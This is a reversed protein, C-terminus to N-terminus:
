ENFQFFVRYSPDYSFSPIDLGLKSLHFQESEGLVCSPLKKNKTSPADPIMCNKACLYLRSLDLSGKKNFMDAHGWTQFKQRMDKISGFSSLHWSANRLSAFDKFRLRDSDINKDKIRSIEYMRPGYIWAEKRRCHFGYIYAVGQLIVGNFKDYKSWNERLSQIIEPRAIEDVDGILLLDTESTKLTRLYYMLKKRQYNEICRSKLCSHSPVSSVMHIKSLINTPIENNEIARKLYLPKYTNQLTVNSEHIIFGDVVSYLTSMHLKLMSMEFGFLILSWVSRLQTKKQFNSVAQEYKQDNIHSIMSKHTMSTTVKIVPWTGNHYLAHLVSMKAGAVEESCGKQWCMSTLHVSVPKVSLDYRPFNEQFKPRNMTFRNDRVVLINAHCKKHVILQNNFFSQGFMAPTSNWKKIICKLSNRNSHSFGILGINCETFAHNNTSCTIKSTIYNLFIQPTQVWFIDMETLLFKKSRRLQDYVFIFKALDVRGLHKGFTPLSNFTNFNECTQVDYAIKLNEATKKLAILSFQSHTRSLVCSHGLFLVILNYLKFNFMRHTWYPLIDIYREDLVTGILYDLMITYYM